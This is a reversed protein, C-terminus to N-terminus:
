GALRAIAVAIAALALLAALVVILAFLRWRPPTPVIRTRAAAGCALCWAQEEALPAACVPCSVVLPSTVAV